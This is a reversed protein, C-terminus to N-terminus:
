TPAHNKVANLIDTGGGVGIVLVNPDRPLLYPTKLILHDFMELKALDGDFQLDVAGADGDHTLLRIKPGETVARERWHPSIGWSAYSGRRSLEEDVLGFSDTRFIASWRHSFVRTSAADALVGGVFKEPSAEFEVRPAGCSGSGPRRRASSPLAPARGHRSRSSSARAARRRVAAAVCRARHRCANIVFVVLLCGVGAGVLDCFYLRSM